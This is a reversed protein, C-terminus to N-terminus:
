RNEAALLEVLEHFDRVVHDARGVVPPRSQHETYAVFRQALGRERLELDTVGDGVAWVQGRLGLAEVAGVKGGVAMPTRPDLGAVRDGAGWRFRHAVVRDDPIGIARSAPLILEAFGGSVVWITGSHRRFFEANRRVSPAIREVLEAALEEVMGRPADLLGIRERLSDEYSIEGAMGRDTIARFRAVRERGDPARSVSRAFLEDLGEADVLTSDFDFLLTPIM